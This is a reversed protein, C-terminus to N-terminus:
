ESVGCVRWVCRARQVRTKGVCERCSEPVLSAKAVASMTGNDIMAKHEHPSNDVDLTVFSLSSIAHLALQNVIHKLVLRVRPRNLRLDTLFSQEMDYEAHVTVPDSFVCSLCDQITDHFTLLYSYVLEFLGVLIRFTQLCSCVVRGISQINKHGEVDVITSNPLAIIHEGGYATL